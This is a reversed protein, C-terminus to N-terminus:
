KALLFRAFTLNSKFEFQFTKIFFIQFYSISKGVRILWPGFGIKEKPALGVLKGIKKERAAWDLGDTSGPLSLRLAWGTGIHEIQRLRSLRVMRSVHGSTHAGLKV